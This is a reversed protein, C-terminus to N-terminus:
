TWWSRRWGPPASRRPSGSGPPAAPYRCAPPRCAPTIEAFLRSPPQSSQDARLLTVDAAQRADLAITEGSTTPAPLVAVPMARRVGPATVLAAAQGSTLPAAPTVRVNAGATFAAQDDDSRLSSQRQAIVLAGTAVALVVLLAAGGQRVPQRSIQWSALAATLRRGRAALRDGAQGGAPLLRLAAVTGGALALAPAIVLVPDVGYGGSIGASVASYRRLEWGALVALVILAVDGGARLVGGIAASRGRRARAVGPTVPRLVPVLMIVVAGAAVVVTAPWASSLAAAVSGAGTTPRALLWALGLGVLGGASAAAVCLPLAEALALRALQGRAAGRATLMASEGERQVALLRAVVLLAAGALLAVLVACIALLSRAVALDSQTGDLVAPLSTVPTLSPLTSSQQLAQDLGSVRAAIGGLQSDPLRAMDPQAVWSASGVALMGTSFVPAAVALPGYTTFGAATGAGSAGISNLSWYPTM